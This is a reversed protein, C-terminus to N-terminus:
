TLKQILSILPVFLAVVIFMVVLGMAIVIPPLLVQSIAQVRYALRRRGSDAMERLAWPLNGARQAAQLIASEPRRILGHWLLSECWDRGVEIDAVAERLRRRISKKPYSRALAAIGEPLPRQQGAVLSLTDLIQASDLRRTFWATGPMEADTWGFYRMTVHVLTLLAFLYFPFLLFWYNVVFTSVKILTVTIAPLTTGFDKFIKEFSPIIKIMVFVLLLFGFTPLTLLYAIKGNLAMWIPENLSYVTAAQRLAPALAGSDWGIRIMPLSFRPLLRGCRDLADPLPVGANLLEALRNVRRGYLGGRERAFAEVAPALPMSREASVALLWLLGYQRGAHHKRVGEVLVFAAIVGLIFGFPGMLGVLLLFLFLGLLARGLIGFFGLVDDLLAQFSRSRLRRLVLVATASLILAMAIGIAFAIIEIPEM